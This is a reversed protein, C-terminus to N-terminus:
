VLPDGSVGRVRGPLVVGDGERKCSQRIPIGGKAARPDGGGADSWSSEERVCTCTRGGDWGVNQAHSTRAAAFDWRKMDLAIRMGAALHLSAGTFWKGTEVDAACAM